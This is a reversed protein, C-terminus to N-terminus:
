TFIQQMSGLKQPHYLTYALGHMDECVYSSSKTYHGYTIVLIVAWKVQPRSDSKMFHLCLFDYPRVHCWIDKSLGPTM